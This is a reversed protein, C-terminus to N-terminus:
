VARQLRGSCLELVKDANTLCKGTAASLAAVQEDGANNLISQEVMDYQDKLSVHCAELEEMVMGSYKDVLQQKCAVQLKKLELLKNGIKQYLEQIASEPPSPKGKAKAKGKTKKDNKIPGAAVSAAPSAPAVNGAEAGSASGASASGVGATVVHM